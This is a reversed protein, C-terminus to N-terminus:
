PKDRVWHRHARRKIPAGCRRCNGVYSAGKMRVERRIPSHRNFWCMPHLPIM